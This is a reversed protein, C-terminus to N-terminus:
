KNRRKKRRDTGTQSGTQTGNAFEDANEEGQYHTYNIVKILSSVNNKKHEIRQDDELENLFRIVKGKSWMWREALKAISWGIEGRDVECKIGRTRIVGKKWNCLSILDLWAQGRTFKEGLWMESKFLSRYAKIYGEKM